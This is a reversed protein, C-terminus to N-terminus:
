AYYVTLTLFSLSEEFGSQQKFFQYCKMGTVKQLEQNSLYINNNICKNIKREEKSERM